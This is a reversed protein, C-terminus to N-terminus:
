VAVPWTIGRVPEAVVAKERCLVIRDSDVGEVVPLAVTSTSIQHLVVMGSLFVLKRSDSSFLVKWVFMVQFRLLLKEEFSFILLNVRWLYWHSKICVNYVM